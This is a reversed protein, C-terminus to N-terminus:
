PILYFSMGGIDYINDDHANGGVPMCKECLIIYGGGEGHVFVIDHDYQLCNCKGCRIGEQRRKMVIAEIASKDVGCDRTAKDKKKIKASANKYNYKWSFAQLVGSATFAILIWYWMGSLYAVNEARESHFSCFLFSLLVGVILSGILIGNNRPSQKTTNKNPNRYDVFSLDSYPILVYYFWGTLGMIIGAIIGIVLSPLGNLIGFLIVLAGNICVCVGKYRGSKNIEEIIDRNYEPPPPPAFDSKYGVKYGAPMSCGCHPCLGKAVRADEKSGAHVYGGIPKGCRPCNM